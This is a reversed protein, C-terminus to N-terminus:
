EIGITATLGGGLNSVEAYPISFVTVNDSMSKNKTALIQEVKRPTVEYTGEYYPLKGGGGTGEDITFEIPTFENVVDISIPQTESQIEVDIHLVRDTTIAM